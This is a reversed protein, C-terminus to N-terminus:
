IFSFFNESWSFPEPDPAPEPEPAPVDNTGGELGGRGCDLERFEGESEFEEEELVNAYRPRDEEEFEGEGEEIVFMTFTM